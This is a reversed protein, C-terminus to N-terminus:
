RIGTERLKWEALYVGAGTLMMPLLLLGLVVLFWVWSWGRERWWRLALLAAADLGLLLLLPAPLLDPRSTARHALAFAAETTAPLRVNYDSFVKEYRAPITEMFWFSAMCALVHAALMLVAGVLGRQRITSIM